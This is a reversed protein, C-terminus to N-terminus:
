ADAWVTKATSMGRRKWRGIAAAAKGSVQIARGSHHSAQLLTDQSSGSAVFEGASRWWVEMAAAVV